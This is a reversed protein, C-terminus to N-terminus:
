AIAEQQQLNSKERITSLGKDKQAVNRDRQLALKQLYDSQAKSLGLQNALTLIKAQVEGKAYVVKEEAMAEANTVDMMNKGQQEIAAQQNAYAEQRIKDQEKKWKEEIFYLKQFREKPNDIATLLYEDATSLIGKQKLFNMQREYALMRQQQQGFDIKVTLSHLPAEDLDDILETDEEGIMNVIAEKAKGGKEISGQMESSWNNYLGEMQNQIAINCYNIATLGSNVQFQQLGILEESDQGTLQQNIGTIYGVNQRATTITTWYGTVEARLGGPIEIFPKFQADHPKDFGETDGIMINHEMYLNILDQMTYKNAEEKLGSLAARMFRLDFYKGQPASKILAHQLKIYAIQAIKNEGICLEVASKEQSVYIHSSFNQFSEKGKTRYSFPLKEIGLYWKTNTVWWFRYTNQAWIKNTCLKEDTTFTKNGDADEHVGVWDISVVEVLKLQLKFSGWNKSDVRSSVGKNCACYGEKGNVIAELTEENCIENSFHNFMERVTMQYDIIRHTHDSGDPLLSEPSTFRGPHIYEVDPLSTMSSTFDTLVARGFKFHDTVLLRRIMDINKINGFQKLFKEFATEVRLSYFLKMFVDEHEPNSLDLGMPAGSFKTASNKTTGIDVKGIQMQDAIDQLDEEIIPKNKLLDLDEKRKKMALADQATCTIDMPLKVINEIASNLVAPIIAYQTWDIGITDINSDMPQGDMGIQAGKLKNAMSKFMKKFPIMSFNGSSYSDIEPVNKDALLNRNGSNHYYYDIAKKAWEMSLKSDPSDFHFSAIFQNSM